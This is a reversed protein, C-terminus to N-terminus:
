HWITSYACVEGTHTREHEELRCPKTYSKGCGEFTCVYKKKEGFVIKGNIIIPTSNLKVKSSSAVPNKSSDSVDELESESGGSLQLVYNGPRKRKGLALSELGTTQTDSM